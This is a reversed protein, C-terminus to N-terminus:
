QIEERAGMKRPPIAGLRGAAADDIAQRIQAGNNMVFPGYQVIPERLPAGAILLVRSPETARLVVGDAGPDNTLIGMRGAPVPATRDGVRVVGEQVYVFANHG